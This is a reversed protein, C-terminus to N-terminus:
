NMYKKYVEIENELILILTNKEYCFPSSTYYIGTGSFSGAIGNSGDLAVLYFNCTTVSM